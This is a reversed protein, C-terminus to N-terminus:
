LQAAYLKGDESGALLEAKGDGNIDAALVQTIKGETPLVALIEGGSSLVQVTGDEVGVIVEPSEDGNLDATTLSSVADGVNRKWVIEGASNICLVYCNRSAVLVEPLGDGTLDAAITARVEAGMDLSWLREGGFAKAHVGGIRSGGILEMVGDGDLDALETACPCSHYGMGLAGIKRGDWQFLGAANYRTGILAALKGDGRLDGLAISLAPHAWNLTGWLETGEDDFAYAFWNTNGAVIEGDGDGDIDGIKLVTFVGAFPEIEPVYKDEPSEISWIVEGNADLRHMKRDSTSAVIASTDLKGADLAVIRSGLDREWLLKGEADFLRVSNAVAAAIEPAGDGNLDYAALAVPVRKEIADFELEEVPRAFVQFERIATRATDFKTVLLRVRTTTIPAFTHVWNPSDTSTIEDDIPVWQEGDWSQLDQGDPAPRYMNSYHCVRVQAITQPTTWEVGLDKPVASAHPAGSSVASYSEMNGDTANRPGSGKSTEEWAMAKGTRALNPEEETGTEGVARLIKRQVTVSSDATWLTRLKPAPPGQAAALRQKHQATLEDFRARLDAESPGGSAVPKFSLTHEGSPLTFTSHGVPNDPRSVDHGVLTDPRCLLSLKAETTASVTAKGQRWNCSITVPVDSEFLKRGWSLSTADLLCCEDASVYALRASAAVEGAKFEGAAIFAHREPERVLMAGESVRTVDYPYGEGNPAYFLNLICAREGAKLQAPTSEILAHRQSSAPTVGALKLRAESANILCFREGAQSVLIRDPQLDIDGITRWITQFNFDADAIAELEDIVAFYEGKRWLINRKWNVGNYGACQTQTMGVGELDARGELSTLRPVPEFLGDRYICVTNHEVTDPVFYGNDFLWYKGNDTYGIIANGDPHAHYGHSIGGLLLYEDEADFSDRFSIKDFCKEQPPVPQTELVATVDASAAGLVKSRHEYVWGPLEFAKVGLLDDPRKREIGEVFYHNCMHESNGVAVGPTKDYFWLYRGDQELWAAILLLGPVHGASSFSSIDGFGSLYGLNNSIMMAYDAMKRLNGSARYAEYDPKEMLYYMLDYWTISGYGPCDEAPKWSKMQTAFWNDCWTELGAVDVDYYRRFYAAAAWNARANWNNGHPTEAVEVTQHANPCKNAYEWVFKSIEARQAASFVPSEEIFDWVTPLTLIGRTDGVREMSAVIEAVRGVGDRFVQARGPDGLRHYQLAAGCIIAAAKRMQSANCQRVLAEIQGETLPTVTEGAVVVTLTHPVILDKGPKITKAFEEVAQRQGAPDSGGLFLVCRGDGWPDHVTRIVYGGPGPFKADTLIFHNRYLHQTAPDDFKGIIVYNERTAAPLETACPLRAGTAAEIRQALSEGLAVGEADDPTIIRAVPEGNRVLPVDLYFTKVPPTPPIEACLGLTSVLLVACLALRCTPTPM